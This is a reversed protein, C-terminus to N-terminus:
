IKMSHDVDLRLMYLAEISNTMSSIFYGINKCEHSLIKKEHMMMSLLRGLDQMGYLLTTVANDVHDSLVSLENDSYDLTVVGNALSKHKALISFIETFPSDINTIANTNTALSNMDSEKITYGHCNVMEILLYKLTINIFTM